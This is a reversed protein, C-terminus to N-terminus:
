ALTILGPEGRDLNDGGPRLPSAPTVRTRRPRRLAPHRSKPLWVTVVFSMFSMADVFGEGGIVTGGGVRDVRGERGTAM